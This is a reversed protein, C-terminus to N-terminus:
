PKALLLASWDEKRLPNALTLGRAGYTSLIDDEQEVLLGSLLIRGSHKTMRDIDAALAQLPGALINAIIVDFPGEIRFAPDNFGDATLAAIGPKDDGVSRLACGNSKINERAVETAVPDIDTALIRADPWLRHAAMALVGSGTGLDLVRLVPRDAMADLQMLCGWTTEHRGTGFAQGADITLNVTGPKDLDADHSGHVYFQGASVPDLLRQSETVWDKEPMAELHYPWDSLGAEDLLTNILGREPEGAFFLELRWLPTHRQEFYSVTPPQEGRMDYIRDVVAEFALSADMSLDGSLRWVAPTM